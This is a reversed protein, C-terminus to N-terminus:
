PKTPKPKDIYQCFGNNEYIRVEEKWDTLQKLKAELKRTEDLSYLFPDEKGKKLAHKLLKIERKM